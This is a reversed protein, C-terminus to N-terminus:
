YSLISHIILLCGCLGGVPVVSFGGSVVYQCYPTKHEAARRNKMETPFATKPYGFNKHGSHIGFAKPINFLRWIESNQWFIIESRFWVYEQKGPGPPFKLQVTFTTSNIVAM